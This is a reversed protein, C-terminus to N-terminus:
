ESKPVPAPAPTATPEPTAATEAPATSEAKAPEPKTEPKPAAADKDNVYFGSGKFMVAIPQILRKVTGVSGCECENLPDATIRQEVEFTSNCKSCEYVYTPMIEPKASLITASSVDAEAL